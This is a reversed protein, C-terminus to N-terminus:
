PKCYISKIPLRAIKAMIKCMVKSGYSQAAPNERNQREEAAEPKRSKQM